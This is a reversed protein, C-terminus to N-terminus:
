EGKMNLLKNLRPYFYRRAKASSELMGATTGLKDLSDEFVRSTIDKLKKRWNDILSQRWDPRYIDARAVEEQFGGLFQPRTQGFFITEAQDCFAAPAM